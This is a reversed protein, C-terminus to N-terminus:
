GRRDFGLTLLGRTQLNSLDRMVDHNYPPGEDARLSGDEPCSVVIVAQAELNLPAQHLQGVAAKVGAPKEQKSWASRKQDSEPEPQMQKQRSAGWGDSWRGERYVPRGHDRPLGTRGDDLWDDDSCYGPEFRRREFIRREQAAAREEAAGLREQVEQLLKLHRGEDDQLAQLDPLSTDAATGSLRLRANLDSVEAELQTVRSSFVSAIALQNRQGEIDAQLRAIHDSMTTDNGSFSRSM